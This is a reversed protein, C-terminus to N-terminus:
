TSYLIANNTTTRQEAVFFAKQNSTPTNNIARFKAKLLDDHLKLCNYNNFGFHTDEWSTLPGMYFGDVLYFLKIVGSVRTLDIIWESGIGRRPRPSNVCPRVCVNRLLRALTPNVATKFVGGHDYIEPYLLPPTNDSASFRPKRCLGNRRLENAKFIKM